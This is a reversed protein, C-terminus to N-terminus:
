PHHVVSGAELQGARATVNVRVDVNVAELEGAVVDASLGASVNASELEGVTGYGCGPWTPPTLGQVTWLRSDFGFPLTRSVAPHPFIGGSIVEAASGLVQGPPITFPASGKVYTPRFGPQEGLQGPGEETIWNISGFIHPVPCVAAGAPLRVYEGPTEL